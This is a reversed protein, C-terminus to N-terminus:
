ACVAEAAELAFGGAFVSLRRFLTRQDVDLLNHSWDILTFLTKQRPLATRSGGTLLTFRDDLRAAIESPTLPGVRAAALEIALPIGDLRRCIEAIAPANGPDLSFGPTVAAAREVFLRVSESRRLEEPDEGIPVSLPPVALVVEGTVGLRERSTALL